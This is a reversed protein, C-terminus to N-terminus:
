SSYQAAQDGGRHWPHQRHVIHEVGAHRVGESDVYEWRDEVPETDILVYDLRKYLAMARANKEPDVGLFMETHGAEQALREIEHILFTGLGRTRLDERIHLDTMQPLYKMKPWNNPQGLVLLGYGVVQEHIELALYRLAIGDADRLRDRHMVEGYRIAALASIDGAVVDRVRPKDKGTSISEM